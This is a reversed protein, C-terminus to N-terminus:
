DNKLMWKYYLYLYATCYICTFCALINLCIPVFPIGATWEFTKMWLDFAILPVMIVVWVIVLVIILAILRTIFHIRRSAMLDSATHLAQMPYLGPASVAVLAIISSSLLYGSLIVMLAAFIFFVLAYFPTALFETQVAASYAIILLFIPICQIFIVLFVLFTPVLPTMANYLGERLTVKKNALRRRLVFITTLWLILFIMIGFVMSAESAEGSLGGTTITSLLLLGSKAFNSLGDENYETSTQDLIDQFETYTSESMIGVFFVNLVVAITLLPLFIKWNSFITKFTSVIHYSISPLKSEKKYDERYSRKFSRHLKPVDSKPWFAFFRKKSLKKAM